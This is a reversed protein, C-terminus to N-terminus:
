RRVHTFSELSPSANPRKVLRNADPNCLRRMWRRTLTASVYCGRGLSLFVVFAAAIGRVERLCQTVRSRLSTM